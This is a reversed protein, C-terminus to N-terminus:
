CTVHTIQKGYAIEVDHMHMRARVRNMVEVPCPAGAMLGTRLSNLKYRDFNPHDLEAIFM